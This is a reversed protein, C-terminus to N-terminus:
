DVASNAQLKSQAADSAALVLLNEADLGIRVKALASAYGLEM